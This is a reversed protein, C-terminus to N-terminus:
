RKLLCITAVALLFFLGIFLFTIKYSETITKVSRHKVVLFLHYISLALFVMKILLFDFILCLPFFYNGNAVIDQYSASQAEAYLSNLTSFLFVFSLTFLVAFIANAVFFIRQYKILKASSEYKQLRKYTQFHLFDFAIEYLVFIIPLFRFYQAILCLVIFFILLLTVTRDSSDSSTIQKNSQQHSNNQQNYITTNNVININVTDSKSDKDFKKKLFLTTFFGVTETVAKTIIAFLLSSM